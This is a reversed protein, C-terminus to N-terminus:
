ECLSLNAYSYLSGIIPIPGEYEVVGAWEQQMHLEWQFTHIYANDVFTENQSIDFPPYRPDATGSILAFEQSAPTPHHILLQWALM